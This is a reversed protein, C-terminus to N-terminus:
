NNTNLHGASQATTLIDDKIEQSKPEEKHPAKKTDSHRTLTPMPMGNRQKVIRNVSDWDIQEAQNGAVRKIYQIEDYTLPSPTVKNGDEREISQSLNTHAEIYLTDDIWAAKIPQDLVNVPTGTEIVTFLRTIAEPYMRICGSSVRRGIGFPRNTGHILYQPWGLYLAHTGLPNDYGPGVEAPLSPDEERMRATPRWTPKATKYRIHTQGTPTELGERGIGLPYTIPALGNDLYAYLRMEALNIVIGKYPADPLIHQAPLTIKTGKGPIWPDVHPNASLLELYGLNYDRALYSLTDDYAANITRVEGIYPKDYAYSKACALLCLAAILFNKM